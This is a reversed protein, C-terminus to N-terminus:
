LEELTNIQFVQQLIGQDLRLAIQKLAVVYSENHHFNVGLEQPMRLTIMEQFRSNM